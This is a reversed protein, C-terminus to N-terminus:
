KILIEELWHNETTLGLSENYQERDPLWYIGEIIEELMGSKQLKEFDRKRIDVTYQSIRKMLKYHAGEEKLRQVWTTSDGWNVIVSIGNDEILQFQESATKFCFDLPKCLLDKIMDTENKPGKDFSSVRSYFCRFYEAMITPNFCDTDDKIGFSKCANVASSIYGSPLPHEKDLSFVFTDGSKIRGERNCRGAAQLISDLGAEQRFVIPFDIDVGAEVLQTSVVRIIENGSNSLAEKLMKITQRIHDSCMMKSLHLTLGEKPLRSYIENADKRTNVVCLVRNYGSIRKAIDDYESPSQDFHLKVRRLKDHLAYSAPIIEKIEKIGHLTVSPNCGMHDGTLAPMSATTFLVSVGFLKQYTRLGDVIPQLHETPLTQVEDLILISNCINHLKRCKSPKNAYISEFLQVNTTVIVPYDWNEAALKKQLNLNSDDVDSIQICSHHELVNEEGFIRKLVDATQVIISTYPIAIIIRKKKYRIGHNLAWVLSSLTKGGGTPVTLSYFGPPFSAEARCQNQIFNRIQNVDTAESSVSLQELHNDLKQKLSELLTHNLRLNSEDPNMFRETDLYDADVLSSFLMRIIHHFDCAELNLGKPIAVTESKGIFIEEPINKRMINELDYFDHLGTHHGAIPYIMLPYVDCYQKRAVLAGVYAHSKDGWTTSSKDYGSTFRIYKQFDVKEKGKDHLLGIVWGLSGFGFESAFGEALTAVGHNHERNTQIASDILRIHSITNEINM